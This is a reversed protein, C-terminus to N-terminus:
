VTKWEDFFLNFEGRYQWLVPYNKRSFFQFLKQQTQEVMRAFVAPFNLTGHFVNNEAFPATKIALSPSCLFVCLRIIGINLFQICFGFSIKLQNSQVICGLSNYFPGKKLVTANQFRTCFSKRFKNTEHAQWNSMQWLSKDDFVLNM